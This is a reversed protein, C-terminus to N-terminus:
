KSNRLKTSIDHLLAKDTIETSTVSVKLSKIPSLPNNFMVNPFSLRLLTGKTMWKRVVDQVSPLETAQEKNDIM